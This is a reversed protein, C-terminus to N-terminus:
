SKSSPRFFSRNPRARAYPIHYFKQYFQDAEQEVDIHIEGPHLVNALHALGIIWRPNGFDWSPPMVHIQKNKVAQVDIGKEYCIEYVEDVPTSLFGSIIIVEPDLQNVFAPDVMIGPKGIRPFNRNLPEGRAALVMKNEFRDENLVYLPTGMAYLVKPRYLGSVLTTILDRRERLYTIVDNGEQVKGTIEALHTIVSNFSEIDLINKHIADIYNSSIFDIWVRASTQEDNLGFCTTIAKIVELARTPRYGGMMGKEQYGTQSWTGTYPIHFGCTCVWNNMQSIIRAGMPGFFERKVVDSGCVPCRTHLYSSGPSNFLYVYHSRKRISDCIKESQRIGPELTLEADGFAIFRMVLIPIDCSIDAIRNCISILREDNGAEHVVTVEVHINNEFLTAINRFVPEPSRAGCMRYDEESIGKIGVAVADLYPILSALSSSTFYGNTSCATLLGAERAAQALRLFSPYSVAPDNIAFVIGRCGEDCATQVIEEPTKHILSPVFESSTRTLLESVCGSCRFNCGITSVQLFKHRPYFHLFPTTEISIPYEALYSDPYREIIRGDQCTYM